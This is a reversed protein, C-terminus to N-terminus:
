ELFKREKIQSIAKANIFRYFRTGTTPEVEAEIQLKNALDVLFKKAKEPSVEAEMVLDTVTVIGNRYDIIRKVEKLLKNRRSLLEPFNVLAFIFFTFVCGLFLGSYYAKEIADM